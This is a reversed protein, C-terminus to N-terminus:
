YTSHNLTISNEDREGDEVIPLRIEKEQKTMVPVEYEEHTYKPSQSGSDIFERQSQLRDRAIRQSEDRLEEIELQAIAERQVEEDIEIGWSNRGSLAAAVSTTGLGAFPDLVVDRHVSYMNILRYPIELPYAATRDRTSDPVGTLTQNAGLIDTWTDSFWENRESWFYASKYRNQRKEDGRFSRTGGKRFILIYENELTVYANTPLMGSGMYKTAKNTPKRWHIRPLATFEPHSLFWQTIRAANPYCRFSGGHSRTADGINICVIGNPSVLSSVEEWVKDLEQHMLEFPSEAATEPEDLAAQIETNMASFVNDWMEIMPYPPSTVVLDAEADVSERLYRSDQQIISHTTSLNFSM